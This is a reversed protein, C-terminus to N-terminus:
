SIAITVLTVFNAFHVTPFSPKTSCPPKKSEIYFPITQLKEGSHSGFDQYQDWFPLLFHMELVGEQGHMSVNLMTM